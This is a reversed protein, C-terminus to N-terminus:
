RMLRSLGTSRRAGAANTLGEAFNRSPSGTWHPSGIRKLFRSRWDSLSRAAANTQSSWVNHCASHAPPRTGPISYLKFTLSLSRLAIQQTKQHNPHKFCHKLLAQAISTEGKRKGREQIKKLPHPPNKKPGGPQRQPKLGFPTSKIIATISSGIM